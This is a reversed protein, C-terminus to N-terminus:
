IETIVGCYPREEAIIDILSFVILPVAVFLIFGFLM